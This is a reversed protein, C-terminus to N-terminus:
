FLVPIVLGQKESIEEQFSQLQSELHSFSECRSPEYSDLVAHNEINMPSKPSLIVPSKPSTISSSSYNVANLKATLKRPAARGRSTSLEHCELKLSRNLKTVKNMKQELEQITQEQDISRTTCVTGNEVRSKRLDQTLKQVKTTLRHTALHLQTKETRRSRM